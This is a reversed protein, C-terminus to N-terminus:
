RPLQDRRPPRSISASSVHCRLLSKSPRCNFTAVTSTLSGLDQSTHKKNEILFCFCSIHLHTLEIRPRPLLYLTFLCFLHFYFILFLSPFAFALFFSFFDLPPSYTSNFSKYKQEYLTFIPLNEERAFNILYWIMFLYISHLYLEV